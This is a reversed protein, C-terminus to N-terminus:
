VRELYRKLEWDTVYRRFTEQEAMALRAHHDVVRDGFTERLFASEHFLRIAEPLSTPVHPIDKLDYANGQVPPELPLKRRLGDLGAALGPALGFGM